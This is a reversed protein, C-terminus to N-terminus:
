QDKGYLQQHYGTKGKGDCEICSLVREGKCRFCVKSDILPGRNAMRIEELTVWGMRWARKDRIEDEPIWLHVRHEEPGCTNSMRVEFNKKKRSGSLETCEFQRWGERIEVSTWRSGVVRNVNLTNRKRHGTAKTVARGDCVNCRVIGRGLCTDCPTLPRSNRIPGYPTNIRPPVEEKKEKKIEKKIRKGRQGMM